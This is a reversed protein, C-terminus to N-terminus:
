IVILVIARVFAFIVLSLAATAYLIKNATVIDEATIPRIDDGITKKKHLKGFYWADGALQVNLAGAMVSETQASNPSSHNYRDRKFIKWANKWDLKMVGSALIMILGSLRAPIYNVVDDMKAAFTGFYQYKDNKYGIMSDMTNISKYFFGGAAGGIVMFFLPAIIGDSTNEAVTEVAAKAVGAETLNQTDRGVIMSVAKRARDLTDRTLATHVRMSEVKLAKTALLQYCWFTELILGAWWGVHRYLLSLCLYPIGTSIVIVFLALLTGGVREGMKNKPFIRRMVWELGDILKGIMRVPHYVWTPDGILLDLLFGLVVAPLIMQVHTM